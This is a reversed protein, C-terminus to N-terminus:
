LGLLFNSVAHKPNRRNNHQKAANAATESKGGSTTEETEDKDSSTDVTTGDLHLSPNVIRSTGAKRSSGAPRIPRMKKPASGKSSRKLSQKLEESTRFGLAVRCNEGGDQRGTSSSSPTSPHPVVLEVSSSSRNSPPIDARSKETFLAYLIINVKCNTVDFAADPPNTQAAKETHRPKELAQSHLQAPHSHTYQPACSSSSSSSPGSTISEASWTSMDPQDYAQPFPVTWDNTLAREFLISDSVRIM